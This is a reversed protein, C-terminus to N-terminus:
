IIFYISIIQELSVIFRTRAKGGSVLTSHFDWSELMVCRAAISSCRFSFFLLWWVVELERFPWSAVVVESFFGM